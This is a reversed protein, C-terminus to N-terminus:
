ACRLICYLSNFSNHTNDVELNALIETNRNLKITKEMKEDTRFINRKKRVSLTWSSIMCMSHRSIRM